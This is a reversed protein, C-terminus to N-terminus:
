GFNFTFDLKYLYRDSSFVSSTAVVQTIRQYSKLQDIRRDKSGDV